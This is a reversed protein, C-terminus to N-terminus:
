KNQREYHANSLTKFIEIAKENSTTEIYDMIFNTFTEEGVKGKKLEELYENIIAKLIQKELLQSM